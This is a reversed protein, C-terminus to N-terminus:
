RAFKLISFSGPTMQPRRREGAAPAAAAEEFGAAALYIAHTQPDLGMTRSGRQTKVNEVVALGGGAASQGIVTLTGDGNSSFALGTGPDFATADVGQGIPLNAAVKGNESDLVIMKENHCGAFLRHKAADLSLGTPETGPALPWRQAVTNKASDIDLTENKDELNVFVTGKGDAVAFEPGGGLAVTAVVKGTAADIVSADDSGGNFSFVHKSAPDYIIADPKKGVPVPEGIAKLTKLDFVVVTNSKGSSAFGRNFEPALAVGHAGDLGPVEGVLTGKETDIVQVRNQRAVYLRHADPDVSLYDWGGDGGIKWTAELHYGSPGPTAATTTSAAPTQAHTSAFAACAAALLGAATARSARNSCSARSSPIFRTQTM